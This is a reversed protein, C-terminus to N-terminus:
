KWLYRPYRFGTPDQSDSKMAEIAATVMAKDEQYTVGYWKDASEVVEVTAKGEDLLQQWTM